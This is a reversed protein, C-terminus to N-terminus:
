EVIIPGIGPRLETEPEEVGEPIKLQVDYVAQDFGYRLIGASYQFMTKVYSKMAEIYASSIEAGRRSTVKNTAADYIVDDTIFSRNGFVVMSPSDSLMDRGAFLRSDYDFGFLNLITPIIDISSCTKEVVVPEMQSNWMILCNKQVDLDTMTTGNFAEMEEKVNQMGYPHHDASLVILTNDLKGAETLVEILYTLMREVEYNCAIYARMQESYNLQEVLGKNKMAMRNGIFNYNTHGSVTMYYAYFRDDDIWEPATAVAMEYDSAPWLSAGEMQFIRDGWVEKSLNGILSAKYDYGLNPHTLHRNYYALTNNHYAYSKVGEAEFYKPLAYPYSNNQSRRFSHMGDPLQGMMNVYEGDSTSTYWLPVYYDKVVVGSNMMMYLTPTLEESIAYPSFAEATIYILNYGKMMGTYANKKSPTMNQMIEALVDINNDGKEILSNFDIKLVNPSTDIQPKTVVEEGVMESSDSETGLEETAETNEIIPIGGQWVDVVKEPLVDPMLQRSFLPLVGYEKVIEAPAYFEQYEIYFEEEYYYAGMLLFCIMSFGVITFGGNLLWETKGYQNLPLVKKKLLVAMVVLSVMMCLLPITSRIVGDVAVGFFETLADKGTILAIELLLPQTFIEHYVLQVAFLLFNIGQMVWLIGINIGRKKAFGVGLTEVAALLFAFAGLLMPQVTNMGFIAIHYVAELWILTIFIYGFVRKM